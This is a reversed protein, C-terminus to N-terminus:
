LGMQLLVQLTQRLRQARATVTRLRDPPHPNWFWPALLFARQSDRRNSVPHCLGRGTVHQLRDELPVECGLAVSEPRFSSGLIGQASDVRQELCPVHVHYIRVKLAVEVRNRM